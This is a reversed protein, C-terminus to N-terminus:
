GAGGNIRGEIDVTWADSGCSSSLHSSASGHSSSGQKSVMLSHVGEGGAGVRRTCAGITTHMRRDDHAGALGLRDRM